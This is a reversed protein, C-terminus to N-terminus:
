GVTVRYVKGYGNLYCSNPLTSNVTITFYCSDYQNVNFTLGGYIGDAYGTYSGSLSGNAYFRLTFSVNPDTYSSYTSEKYINACTYITVSSSNATFYESHIYNRMYFTFSGDSQMKSDGSVFAFYDHSRGNDLNDARVVSPCSIVGIALLM